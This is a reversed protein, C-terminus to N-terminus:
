YPTSKGTIGVVTWNIIIHPEIPEQMKQLAKGYPQIQFLLKKSYPVM